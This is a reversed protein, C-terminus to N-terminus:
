EHSRHEAEIEQLRALLEAQTKALVGIQYGIEEAQEACVRSFNQLPRTYWPLLRHITKMVLNVWLPYGQPVTGVQGAEWKLAEALKALRTLDLKPSQIPPAAETSPQGAPMVPQGLYERIATIVSASTM